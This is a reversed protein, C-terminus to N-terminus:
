DSTTDGQVQKLTENVPTYLDGVLEIGFHNRFTVKTRTVNENLTFTYHEKDKSIQASTGNAMNNEKGCSVAALLVALIIASKYFKM